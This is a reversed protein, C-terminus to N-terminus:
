IAPKRAPRKIQELAKDLVGNLFKKSNASSFEKSIELTEDIIVVPPVDLRYKIEYLAVRLLALDAKAIRSFDWNTVLEKIISDLIEIKDLVGDVLEFSYAYYEEEHELREIFERLDDSLRDTPNFEWQFLFRFATARNQRRQSWNPNIILDEDM